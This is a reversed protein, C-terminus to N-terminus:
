VPLDHREKFTLGYLQNAAFFVGNKLVHDLEFYPKVQADDLDYKAKRVQEAYYEWDWPQLKFGGSRGPRDRAQIEAAEREAEAGGGPGATRPVQGGRGADEGDPRGAEPRM